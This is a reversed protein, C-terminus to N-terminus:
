VAPTAVVDGLAASQYRSVPAVMCMDDLEPISALGRVRGKEVQM